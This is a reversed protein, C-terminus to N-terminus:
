TGGFTGFDYNCREPPARRRDIKNAPGIGKRRRGYAPAGTKGFGVTFSKQLDKSTPLPNLPTDIRQGTDTKESSRHALLIYRIQSFPMSWLGGRNKHSKWRAAVLPQGCFSDHAIRNEAGPIETESGSVVGFRQFCFGTKGPLDNGIVFTSNIRTIVLCFLAEAIEGSLGPKPVTQTIIRDPKNLNDRQKETSYGANTNSVRNGSKIPLYRFYRRISSGPAPLGSHGPSSHCRDSKIKKRQRAHAKQM